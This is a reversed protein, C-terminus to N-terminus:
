TSVMSWSISISHPSNSLMSFCNVSVFNSIVGVLEGALNFCIVKVGLFDGILFISDLIEGSFDMAKIGLEDGALIVCVNNNGCFYLLGDFDGLFHSFTDSLLIADWFFCSLKISPSLFIILTPKLLFTEGIFVGSFLFNLTLETCDDESVWTPIITISYYQLIFM